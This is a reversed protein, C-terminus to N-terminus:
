GRRLQRRALDSLESAKAALWGASEALMEARRRHLDLIRSGVEGEQMVEHSAEALASDRLVDGYAQSVSRLARELPSLSLDFAREASEVIRIRDRERAPIPGEFHNEAASRLFGSLSDQM